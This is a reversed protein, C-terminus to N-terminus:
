NLLVHKSPSAVRVMQLLYKIANIGQPFGKLQDRIHLLNRKTLPDSTAQLQFILLFHNFKTLWFRLLCEVGEPHLTWSPSVSASPSSEQSETNKAFVM